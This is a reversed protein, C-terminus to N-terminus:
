VDDETLVGRGRAIGIHKPGKVGSQGGAMPVAVAVVIVVVVAILSFHVQTLARHPRTYRDSLALSQRAPSDLPEAPAEGERGAVISHLRSEVLLQFSHCALPCESSKRDQPGYFYHIDGKKAAM